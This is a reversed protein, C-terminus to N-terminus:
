LISKEGKGAPVKFFDESENDECYKWVKACTMNKFVWTEDQYYIRYGACRHKDIWFIYDNDMKVIDERLKTYTYSNGKRWPYFWSVGYVSVTNVSIVAM